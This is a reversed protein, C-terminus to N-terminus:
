SGSPVMEKASLEALVSSPGGLLSMLLFSFPWCTPHSEGMGLMRTPTQRM